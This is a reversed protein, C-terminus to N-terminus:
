LTLTPSSWVHDLSAYCCCSCCVCRSDVLVAGVRAPPRHPVSSRVVERAEADAIEVLQQQQQQYQDGLRANHRLLLDDEGTLKALRARAEGKSEVREFHVSARNGSAPFLAGDAWSEGGLAAAKHTTTMARVRRTDGEADREGAGGVRPNYATVAGGRAARQEEGGAGGPVQQPTMGHSGDVGYQRYRQAM